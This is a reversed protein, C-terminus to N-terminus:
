DRAANDIGVQILNMADAWRSLMIACCLFHWILLEFDWGERREFWHRVGKHSFTAFCAHCVDVNESILNAHCMM